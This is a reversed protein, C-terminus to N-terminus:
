SDLDKKEIIMFCKNLSPQYKEVADVLSGFDHILFTTKNKIYPASYKRSFLSSKKFRYRLTYWCRLYRHPIKKYVRGEVKRVIIFYKM